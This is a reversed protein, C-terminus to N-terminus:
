PKSGWWQVLKRLAKANGAEIVEGNGPKRYSDFNRGMHKIEMRTLYWNLAIDERSEFVVTTFHQEKGSPNFYDALEKLAEDDRFAMRSESASAAGVLPGTLWEIGRSWKWGEGATGSYLRRNESINDRIQILLIGSTHSRLWHRYHYLWSSAVNVGYNDYYGADVVRRRPTVPLDVAPSVYPFSANMRVATSVKFGNDDPFLNFFEIGPLSYRSRRSTIKKEEDENDSYAPKGRPRKRPKKSLQRLNINPSDKQLPPSDRDPSLLPGRIETLFSLYLNSILLIRGDEVLMPSLILSPRWGSAEGGAL